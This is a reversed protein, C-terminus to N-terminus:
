PNEGGSKGAAIAKVRAEQQAADKNALTPRLNSLSRLLNFWFPAGLSLLVISVLVGSWHAGLAAWWSEGPRRASLMGLAFHRDLLDQLSDAAQRLTAQPVLAEYAEVWQAVNTVGHLQCQTALWNTGSARNTIVSTGAFNTLAIPQMALLQDAALRYVEAPLNTSGAQMEDAKSLLAESSAVVKARVRILGFVCWWTV